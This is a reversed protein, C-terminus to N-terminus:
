HCQCAARRIHAAANRRSRWDSPTASLVQRVPRGAFMFDVILHRRSRVIVFGEAGVIAALQHLQRRIM